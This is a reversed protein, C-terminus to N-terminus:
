FEMLRATPRSSEEKSRALSFQRGKPHKEETFRMKSCQFHVLSGWRIVEFNFTEYFFGHDWIKGVRM